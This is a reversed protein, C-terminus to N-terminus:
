ESHVFQMLWSCFDDLNHFLRSENDYSVSWIQKGESEETLFVRFRAASPNETIGYGLRALARRTWSAANGCGDLKVMLCPDRHLRFNGQEADWDLSDNTFVKALHGNLALHEPSGVSLEGLDSFLWLKDACRIALEMDHTSLLIAMGKKRALDRLTRMLEVRRIIDLYATPEDLLMLKAEQALARAIMVKQREGDSLESVQRHALLDADVACLAQEIQRRDEDSLGGSWKTHPHRGLAVLSYATFIGVPLNDTLVISVNRARDRPEMKDLEQGSLHIKGDLKDQLGGLTRLLTSKGAGNPGLLCVFEGAKLDLNLGESVRREPYKKIRYGIALNESSLVTHNSDTM